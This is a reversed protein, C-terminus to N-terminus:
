AQEQPDPTPLDRKLNDYYARCDCCSEVHAAVFQESSSSAVKDLCLPMLDRAIKCNENM